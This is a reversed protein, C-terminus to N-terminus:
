RVDGKDGKDGKDLASDANFVIKTSEARNINEDPRFTNLGKDGDIIGLRRAEMIYEFDPHSRSIDAFQEVKELTATDPKVGSAELIMRIVEGRTAPRNLDNLGRM